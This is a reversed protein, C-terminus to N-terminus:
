EKRSPASAMSAKAWRALASEMGASAIVSVLLRKPASSNESFSAFDPTCGIMPACIVTSKASRAGDGARRTSAAFARAGITSM